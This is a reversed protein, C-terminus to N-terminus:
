EHRPARLASPDRCIRTIIIIYSWDPEARYLLSLLEPMYISVAIATFDYIEYATSWIYASWQDVTNSPTPLFIHLAERELVPNPEERCIM